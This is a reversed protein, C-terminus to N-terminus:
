KSELQEIPLKDWLHVINDNIPLTKATLAKKYAQEDKFTVYCYGKSEKDDDRIIRLYGVDGFIKFHEKLEQEFLSPINIASITFDKANIENM